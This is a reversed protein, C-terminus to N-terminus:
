LRCANLVRNFIRCQKSSSLSLIGKYKRLLSRGDSTCDWDGYGHDVTTRTVVIVMAAEM